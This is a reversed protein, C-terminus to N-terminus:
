FSLAIPYGTSATAQHKLAVLGGICWRCYPTLCCLSLIIIVMVIDLNYPHCHCTESGECSVLLILSSSLASNSGDRKPTSAIFDLFFELCNYLVLISDSLVYGVM